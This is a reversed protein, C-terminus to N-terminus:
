PCHTTVNIAIRRNTKRIGDREASSLKKDADSGPDPEPAMPRATGLGSTKSIVAEPVGAAVLAKKVALARGESIKQSKDAPSDKATHGIIEFRLEPCSRAFLALEKLAESSSSGQTTVLVAANDAAGFEFDNFDFSGGKRAVVKAFELRQEKSSSAKCAALDASSPVPIGKRPLKTWGTLPGLDESAQPTLEAPGGTASGLRGSQVLQTMAASIPVLSQTLRKQEAEHLRTLPEYTVMQKEAAAVESSEIFYSELAFKLGVLTVVAILGVKAILEVRPESRDYAM